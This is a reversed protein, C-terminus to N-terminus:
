CPLGTEAARYLRALAHAQGISDAADVLPEGESEAADALNELELMYSNQGDIEIQEITGARDLEIRPHGLDVRFPVATRLTADEGVLELGQHMPVLFSSDFQAVVDGSFRLTGHFAVEAGTPGIAQEGYVREPEGALLRAANLCYCGMDMLSGGDLQPSLRIDGPDAIPWRLWARILRLRGIAGQAALEAIRRILPNHRYMFGEMLTRGCRDAIEFAREAEAPRRTLPKECLVHKGAELARVAWDVHMSNPLSIYVADIGPDALLAEYSGHAREIGRARAYAETKGPDRGAVAVIDVRDTAAAGAVIMENIRATSLLGLRLAV